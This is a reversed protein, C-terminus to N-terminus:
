KLWVIEKSLYLVKISLLFHTQRASNTSLLDKYDVLKFHHDRLATVSVLMCSKETHYYVSGSFYRLNLALVARRMSSEHETHDEHLLIITKNFTVRRKTNTDVLIRSATTRIICTISVVM